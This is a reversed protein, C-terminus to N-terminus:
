EGALLREAYGLDAEHTIKINRWDGEVVVVEGGILEVLAADDTAHGHGAHARRLVETRFAQPTQVARLEARELTSEVVNGTIRKITDTLKLAPVAGDSGHRVAEVVAEFLDRGAVPRAADHVVVIEAGEPVAALGARVSDSRERGGVVVADAGPEPDDAFADAVVLVVGDSVSRAAALSWDLVRLDGLKEYQKPLDGGFRSASGAAVVVTWV